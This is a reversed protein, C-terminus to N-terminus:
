DCAQIGLQIKFLAVINLWEHRGEVRRGTGFEDYIIDNTVTAALRDIDGAGYADIQERLLDIIDQDAM